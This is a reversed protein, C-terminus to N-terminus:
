HDALAQLMKLLFAAQGIGLKLALINVAAEEGGRFQFAATEALIQVIIEALPQRGDLQV